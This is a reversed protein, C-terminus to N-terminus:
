VQEMSLRHLEYSGRLTVLERMFAFAAYGALLGVFARGRLLYYALAFLVAISGWLAFLYFRGNRSSTLVRRVDMATRTTLLSAASERLSRLQIVGACVGLAIGLGFFLWPRPSAGWAISVGAAGWIVLLMINTKPRLSAHM